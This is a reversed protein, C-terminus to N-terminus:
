NHAIAAFPVDGDPAHDSLETRTGLLGTAEKPSRGEEGDARGLLTNLSHTRLGWPGGPTRIRFSSQRAIVRSGTRFIPQAEGSSRPRPSPRPVPGLRGRKHGHSRNRGFRPAPPLVLVRRQQRH